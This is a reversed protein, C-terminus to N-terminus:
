HIMRMDDRKKRGPNRPLVGQRGPCRRKELIQIYFIEEMSEQGAQRFVVHYATTGTEATVCGGGDARCPMGDRAPLDRMNM